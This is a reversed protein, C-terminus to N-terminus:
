EGGSEFDRLFLVGQSRKMGLFEAIYETALNMAVLMVGNHGDREFEKKMEEMPERWLGDHRYAEDIWAPGIHLISQVVNFAVIRGGVEGILITAQKPDPM